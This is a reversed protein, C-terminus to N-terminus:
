STSWGCGMAASAAMTRSSFSRRLPIPTLVELRLRGDSLRATVEPASDAHVLANTVLESTVLAMADVVDDPCGASALWDAVSRRAEGPAAAHWGFRLRLVLGNVTQDGDASSGGNASM